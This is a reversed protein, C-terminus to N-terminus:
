PLGSGQRVIERATIVGPRRTTVEGVGSVTDGPQLDICRLMQGQPTRIATDAPEIRLRTRAEDRLLLQGQPCNVLLVPGRFRIERVPPTNGPAPPEIVVVLALISRDSLRVAGQVAVNAGVTLENCTLAAGNGRVLDAEEGVRVLLQNPMVRRDNVLLTAEDGDCDVLALQGYFGLVTPAPLDLRERTLTIDRMLLAAGEPIDVQQTVSYERTTFRVTASGSLDGSLEFNGEGDTVTRAAPRGDISVVIGATSGADGSPSEVGVVNGSLGSSLGTGVPGGDAACGAMCGALLLLGWRLMNM